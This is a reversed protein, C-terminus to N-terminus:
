RAQEEFKHELLKDIVNDLQNILLNNGMSAVQEILDQTSTVMIEDNIQERLADNHVNSM